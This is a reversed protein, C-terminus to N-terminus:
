AEEWFDIEGAIISTFFKDKMAMCADLFGQQYDPLCKIDVFNFLSMSQGSEKSFSAHLSDIAEGLSLIIEISSKERKNM